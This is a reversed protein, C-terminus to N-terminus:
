IYIINVKLIVYFISLKVTEDRLFTYYVERFVDIAGLYM